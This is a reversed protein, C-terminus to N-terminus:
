LAKNNCLLQMKCATSPNFFSELTNLIENLVSSLLFLSQREVVLVCRAGQGGITVYVVSFAPPCQSPEVEAFGAAIAVETSDHDVM